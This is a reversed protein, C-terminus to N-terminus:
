EVVALGVPPHVNGYVLLAVLGGRALADLEAPDPRWFSMQVGHGDIVALTVPLAGIPLAAQDHGAPAGLVHNNSPHQTRQM